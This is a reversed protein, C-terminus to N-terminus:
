HNRIPKLIWKQSLRLSLKLKNVLPKADTVGNQAQKITTFM